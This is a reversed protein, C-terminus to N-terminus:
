ELVRPRRAPDPPCARLPLDVDAAVLHGAPRPSVALLYGALQGGHVPRAAVLLLEVVGPLVLPDTLVRGGGGRGRDGAAAGVLAGALLGGRAPATPTTGRPSRVDRPSPVKM